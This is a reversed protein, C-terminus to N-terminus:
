PLRVEREAAGPPGSRLLVRASAALPYRLLIPEIALFMAEADVGYLFIRSDREGHETGDCEGLGGLAAALLDELTSTDYKEYVAAPLSTGNLTIIVAESRGGRTTKGFIRKFWGM